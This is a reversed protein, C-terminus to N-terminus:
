KVILSVDDLLFSTLKGANEVGVFHLQVSQGKYASLDYQYQKYNSSKNLNSFTALTALVKGSANRVQVSLSDKVLTIVTEDSVVKLWFSYQASTATAPILVTQTLTDTHVEGYGNLWAKYSGGHAAEDANNTIVGSSQKWGSAKAEFSGNILLETATSQNNVAFSLATSNGVNGAADVARAQLSHTGNAIQKSDFQVTYPAQSSSGTLVSDVLYEVRVVGVNDSANATFKLLGSSGAVTASVKPPTTDKTQNNVAFSVNTSVGLNGAADMARAQLSHNGNTLTSSDVALSYPASNSSGVLKGDIWFEVKSVAVNDSASANLQLMGSSGGVSASVQPAEKDGATDGGEQNVWVPASWLIKGDDQTLKAYYFHPGPKPTITIQAGEALLATSGSSGPVGEILAVSAVQRGQSNAFSVNLSLPGSNNFREGMLRGNATLIIQSNKDMTAFVRRAKLADLFSTESLRTAAPILVGTRNPASAGWNACHNDQNSSFAVHYGVELLKNCASEFSSLGTDSEDTVNSFASSNMVECLAMVHDGDATYGLDKSGIKFQSTKEPHNFQGVMGRQKMLTYLAAYDGRGIFTDGILQEASNYEWALLEKAGFINLHGGNSIIGWEMGYLALFDPNASNFGSAAQLGSQYRAKAVAVDANANTSSSNGDFLHNHESTMLFDLGHRKAFAYADQPGYAGSQPKAAHSCSSNEAGGDSHNTQSHLNGYYVTYPLSSTAPTALMQKKGSKYPNNALARFAPMAVKRVQGIQMPWNQQVVHDGQALIQPVRTAPNSALLVPNADLAVADLHVSYLGDPLADVSARGAWHIKKVLEQQRLADIGYWTQIIKGKPNKLQVRWAVAQATPAFPYEAQLTFYRAQNAANFQAKFPVHLSAEFEAHDESAAMVPTCVLLTSSFVTALIYSLLSRAPYHQALM